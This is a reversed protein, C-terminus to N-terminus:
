LMLAEFKDLLGTFADLAKEVPEPTSMDVGALRLSDMPYRSGGSKLFELYRNKDEENGKLVKEALTIAASIGTAYKYVYFARYFHPIRLGELDSLSFLKVNPGFYQEMLKRYTSRLSAVTNPEGQEAQQHVLMEFEAFMTQRFLTAVVDDIQKGLVYAVMEKSEAHSVLYDALLQENFTSAVEAEFITYDYSPFPNNRASYYSHMSHGGEHALTFVDRLVDEKYNMMIYPYGSYIGSSFAGSRKGKNEYRDVWRAVTLGEQLTKVYDKGLPSLAKGIVDVAEEYSHKVTIGKVIPVYVDYHTLKDVSLLKKRIEYYRHLQPLAHHVASVLNDYVSLDVKDPFLFMSRSDPYSRVKARFLDQKISADYLTAITNKHKDFVRYFKRYARERVRRDHHQMLYGYTSQTLPIKGEETVIHGFDLDVNTLASFVEQAKGGIEGQLAMIKEEEPSLVHPKFRLMKRVMIRYDEYEPKDLWSDIKKTEIALIEPEIFSTAASFRTMLQHALSQRRQNIPDGGDTAHNLFAYQMIREAVKGIDSLWQLVGLLTESSKGIEGKFKTSGDIASEIRECDKEWQTDDVYLATLDWTNELSVDKRELIINKKADASM